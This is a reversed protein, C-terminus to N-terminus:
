FFSRIRKWGLSGDPNRVAKERVRSETPGSIRSKIKGRRDFFHLEPPALAYERLTTTEPWYAASELRAKDDIIYYALEDKTSASPNGDSGIKTIVSLEHDTYASTGTYGSYANEIADLFKDGVTEYHGNRPIKPAATPPKPATKATPQFGQKGKQVNTPKSM